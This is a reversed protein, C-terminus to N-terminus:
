KATIQKIVKKFLKVILPKENLLESILKNLSERKYNYNGYRLEDMCGDRMTAFRKFFEERKPHSKASSIFAPNYKVMDDYSIQKYEINNKIKEFIDKAKQSNITLVSVGKKDYMIPLIEKVGWLDGITFDSYRDGKFSCKHCSPRSFLGSLCGKRYSLAYKRLSLFIKIKKPLLNYLGPLKPYKINNKLSLSMISKDWGYTKDRFDISNIEETNFNEELFNKWVLPSAVQWCILDVLMLNEYDKQLFSKLGAIQCPTGTFLVFKGEDLFQKAQKYTINIDSQVYKSRRLVDLDEKIYIYKHVVKWNNDFSAGFVIGNQELVYNAFISFMGGSSSKLQEDVNKNKAGYVELVRNNKNNGYKLVDMGRHMQREMIPCVKLCLRCKICKNKDVKPYLFGESDYEMKIAEKPCINFCASCGCCKTKDTINLM